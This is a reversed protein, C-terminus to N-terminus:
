KNFINSDNLQKKEIILLGMLILVQISWQTRTYIAMEKGHLVITSIFILLALVKTSKHAKTRLICYMCYLFPLYYLLSGLLGSHFLVRVYGVDTRIKLLQRDFTGKGFFLTKEDKPLFYMDEVTEITTSEGKDIFQFAESVHNITFSLNDNTGFDRIFLNSIYIIIFASVIVMAIISKIRNKLLSQKNYFSIFIIIISAFLTTIIGTRGSIFISFILLPLSILVIFKEKFNCKDSNLFYISLIIGWGQVVSTQSLGYTLGPVRYGALIGYTNNVINLTGAIDYIFSRFPLSIYMIIMILAHLLLSIYIYKLIDILELTKKLSMWKIIGIGGTFTILTRLVRLYINLEYSNFFIVFSIYLLYLCIFFLFRKLVTPIIGKKIIFVSFYISIITILDIGGFLIWGFIYIFIVILFIVSQIM